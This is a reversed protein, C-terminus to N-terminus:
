PKLTLPIEGGTAPVTATLDSTSTSEYRAPLPNAPRVPKGSEDMTGAPGKVSVRYEGPAAGPSSPSAALAYKGNVIAGSFVSKDKVNIFSVSGEPVPEGKFTVEGSVPVLGPISDSGSCGISMLMLCVLGKRLAPM